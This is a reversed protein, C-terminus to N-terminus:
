KDLRLDEMRWDQLVCTSWCQVLLCVGQRHWQLGRSYWSIIHGLAMPKAGKLVKGIYAAARWHLDNIDAAYSMLGGAEANAKIGFMGPLRYKLALEALRARESYSLPSALDLFGGVHEDAMTM